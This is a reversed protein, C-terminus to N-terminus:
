LHLKSCPSARRERPPLPTLCGALLRSTGPSPKIQFPYERDLALRLHSTNSHSSDYSHTQHVSEDVVAAMWIALNTTLTFMLGCRNPFPSCLPWHSAPGAAGPLHFAPSSYQSIVNPFLFAPHVSLSLKSPVNLRALIGGLLPGPSTWPSLGSGSGRRSSLVYLAKYTVWVCLYSHTPVGM